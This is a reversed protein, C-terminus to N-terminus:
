CCTPKRNVMEEARRIICKIWRKKTVHETGMVTVNHWARRQAETNMDLVSDRRVMATEEHHAKLSDEM